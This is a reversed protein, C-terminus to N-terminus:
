EPENGSEVTEITWAKYAAMYLRSSFRRSRSMGLGGNERDLPASAAAPTATLETAPRRRQRFPQEVFRYSLWAVLIAVCAAVAAHVRDHSEAPGNADAHLWVILAAQWLYLSYSIRGM